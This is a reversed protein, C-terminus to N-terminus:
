NCCTKQRLYHEFGTLYFLHWDDGPSALNDLLQNNQAFFDDGNYKRCVHKAIKGRVIDEHQIRHYNFSSFLLNLVQRILFDVFVLETVDHHFEIKRAM